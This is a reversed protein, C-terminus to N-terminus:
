QDKLPIIWAPYPYQPGEPHPVPAMYDNGDLRPIPNEFVLCLGNEGLADLFRPNWDPGGPGGAQMSVGIATKYEENTM